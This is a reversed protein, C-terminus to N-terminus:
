PRAEQPHSWRLRPMGGLLTSRPVRHLARRVRAPATEAVPMRTVCHIMDISVALPRTPDRAGTGGGASPRVRPTSSTRTTPCPELANPHLGFPCCSPHCVRQAPLQGVSPRRAPPAPCTRYGCARPVRGHQAADQRVAEPHAVRHAHFSAQACSTDYMDRSLGCGDAQRPRWDLARFLGKLVHNPSEISPIPQFVPTHSCGFCLVFAHRLAEWPAAPQEAGQKGRRVEWVARHPAPVAHRGRDVAHPAPTTRPLSCSVTRPLPAADWGPYGQADRMRRRV